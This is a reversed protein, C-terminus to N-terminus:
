MYLSQRQDVGKPYFETFFEPLAEVCEEASRKRTYIFLQQLTAISRAESEKREFVCKAFKVALWRPAEKYFSTFLDAIQEQDPRLFEFRRDVRGGRILAPDLKEIHNTTLITIIGDTSCLGDLCNLFASFTLASHGEHKRDENFLADCDEVVLLAREPISAMADQLTQNNFNHGTLSLFCANLKFLGALVRISSTKGSGPIGHFLLSRRHPLGHSQYWQKTDTSMFDHVDAIISYMQGKQLIVSSAPRALKYGQSCWDGCGGDEKFRYLLFKGPKMKIRSELSDHRAKLAAACFDKLVDVQAAALTVVRFMEPRDGVPIGHASHHLYLIAGNVSLKAYGLGAQWKAVRPKRKRLGWANWLMDDVEDVNFGCETLEAKVANSVGVEREDESDSDSDSELENEFADSPSNWISKLMTSGGDEPFENADLPAGHTEAYDLISCYLYDSSHTIEITAVSDADLGLREAVAAPFLAARDYERAMTSPAPPRATGPHSTPRRSHVLRNQVLPAYLRTSATPARHQHRASDTGHSTQVVIRIGHFATQPAHRLAVFHQVAIHRPRSGILACSSATPVRWSWTRLVACLLVDHQTGVRALLRIFTNLLLSHPVWKTTALYSGACQEEARMQYTLNGGAARLNTGGGRWWGGCGGCQHCWFAQRAQGVRGPQWELATCDGTQCYEHRWSAGGVFGTERAVDAGLMDLM